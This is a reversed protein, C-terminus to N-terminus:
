IYTFECMCLMAFSDRLGVSLGSRMLIGQFPQIIGFEGPALGFDRQPAVPDLLWASADLVHVFACHLQISAVVAALVHSTM